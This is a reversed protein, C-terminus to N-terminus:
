RFAKASIHADIREEKKLSKKEKKKRKRGKQVGPYVKTLMLERKKREKEENKRKEGKQVGPTNTPLGKKASMGLKFNRPDAVLNPVM